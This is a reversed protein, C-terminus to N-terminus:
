HADIPEYYRFVRHPTSASDVDLKHFITTCKPTHECMMSM